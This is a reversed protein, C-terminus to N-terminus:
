CAVPLLVLLRGNVHTIEMLADRGANEVLQHEIGTAHAIDVHGDITDVALVLTKTEDLEVGLGLGIIRGLNHVVNGEVAAADTDVLGRGVLLLVDFNAGLEEQTVEVAHNVLLCEVVGKALKTRQDVRGLDGAVLVAQGLAVAEDGITVKFRGIAGNGAHMALEHHVLLDRHLVRVLLVSLSLAMSVLCLTHEGFLCLRM